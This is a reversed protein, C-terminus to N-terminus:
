RDVFHLRRSVYRGREFVRGRWLLDCINDIPDLLLLPASYELNVTDAITSDVGNHERLRWFRQSFANFHLNPTSKM